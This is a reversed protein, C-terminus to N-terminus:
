VFWFHEFDWGSLSEGVKDTHYGAIKDTYADLTDMFTPIIYPGQQFDIQQMEHLIEKRTSANSTANAQQYLHAYHANDSHTENFPSSAGLFSQAVQNLYPAYSYYDQSFTWNLYNTGFFTGADIQKINVKVGAAAAQEAFVTALAVTATAIPSTTLTVTLNEHGAQKLLAKAQPIDQQRRLSANFDADYPAFVDSAVVGFGDLASDIMQQRGVLLRFAQRVRADNFPAQDIRMTFPKFQGTHSAVAKVGATNALAAMQPPDLQGAAQIVNTTLADQVATNDSFDTITLTGVYPLGTKWYNKNRVFVSRQGPTFSQYAFPGTGDPTKGNFGTPVVYLYYWGGALQDVFSGFPTKMPVTVTLKDVAKVGKIDVPGFFLTGSYSNSVIRNMTYVVDASTLSKGSHFTVGPRLKVTWETLAANPTISEALVYEVAADKNLKVLPQYLAEFRGTDLYTLGQHPDLTDSTSGGSLGVRLNGGRKPKGASAPTSTSTSGASGKSGTSCGVLLGGATAAVGTLAIGRLFDRRGPMGTLLPTSREDSHGM